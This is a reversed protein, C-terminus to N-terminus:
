YEENAVQENAVREQAIQRLEADDVFQLTLGALNQHGFPLLGFDNVVVLRTTMWGLLFLVVALAILSSRGLRSMLSRISPSDPAWQSDPARQPDPAQQPDPSRLLTGVMWVWPILSLYAPRIMIAIIVAIAVAMGGALRRGCRIWRLLCGVTVVGMSAAIADTALTSQHDLFTCGFVIAFAAAWVSRTPASWRKLEVALWWAAVCALIWALAPVAALGMVSETLKLFLPYVPTRISLLASEFSDLPYQLYSDTDAVTHPSLRGTLGALGLSVVVLTALLSWSRDYATPDDRSSMSHNYGDGRTLTRNQTLFRLVM